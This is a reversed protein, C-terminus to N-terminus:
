TLRLRKLASRFDPPLSSEARIRAGTRPQPFEIRSAHLMQRPLVIEPVPATRRGAYQRDGAVPCGLSLLHKRIQHTRGTEIRVLWHSALRNADLVRVHTVAKVGDMTSVLTQEDREPRGWALAHYMKVVQGARFAAVLAERATAHRAFLLCGSTDRDLRHAVRLEQEGTEVRLRAEVSGRENALMGPPKDAVLCDDDDYLLAITAEADNGRMGPLAAQVKDGTRLRHRAMWVFAGNVHVARADLLGKAKKRSWGLRGALADLLTRGRENPGATFRLTKM